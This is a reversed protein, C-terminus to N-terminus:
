GTATEVLVEIWQRANFDVDLLGPEPLGTAGEWEGPGDGGEGDDAVRDVHHAAILVVAGM